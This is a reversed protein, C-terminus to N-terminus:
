KERKHRQFFDWIVRNASLRHTVYGIIVKAMFQQGGPWAHGGGDIRYFDIDQRVSDGRYKVLTVTTPDHDAPESLVERSIERCGNAKAWIDLSDDVSLMMGASLFPGGEYPWVPDKTGHIHLFPIPRNAVKSESAAFQHCGAVSAVAAWVEPMEAALRQVMVGGNSIGVLYVRDADVNWRSRIGAILDRCYKVDDVGMRRAPEAVPAFGKAGGGGNWSRGPAVKIPTGNPYAVLFREQQALSDMSAPHNPDGDPSTLCRMKRSDQTYGHFAIVLPLKETDPCGTPVFMDYGRDKPWGNLPFEPTESRLLKYVKSLM